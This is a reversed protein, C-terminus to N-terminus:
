RRTFRTFKRNKVQQVVVPSIGNRAANFSFRGLVTRLRKTSSLKGNVADPSASRAEKIANAVVYTYAYAQAAFQDPAVRYRKRFDAIFKRNAATRTAASWAAGVVLGNAAAKAEAIVEASNFANSGIVTRRYGANRLAVLIPVGEAPLATIVVIDPDATAVGAALTAYDTTGAPITQESTITLANAELANKYIPGSTKAFADSGVILAASTPQASSRAVARVVRPAILAETLAPRHVFTGISTLAYEEGTLSDLCNQTNSIGLVPMRAAQAFHDVSCAVPSLTPGLIASVNSRAFVGFASSAGEISGKDDITKVTLRVGSVSGRNIERVALNIGRQQSLGYSGNTGTLTLAAGITASTQASATAALALISAAVAAIVSLRTGSTTM